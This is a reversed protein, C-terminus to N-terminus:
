DFACYSFSHYIFQYTFGANFKTASQKHENLLTFFVFFFFSFLSVYMICIYSQSQELQLPM